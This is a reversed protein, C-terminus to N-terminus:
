CRCNELQFDIFCHLQLSNCSVVRSTFLRLSPKSRIKYEFFTLTTYKVCFYVYRLTEFTAEGSLLTLKRVTVGSLLTKWGSLLPGGSTVGGGGGRFYRGSGLTVGWGRFYHGAAKLLAGVGRLCSWIFYWLSICVNSYTYSYVHRRWFLTFPLSEFQFLYKVQFSEISHSSCFSKNLLRSKLSKFPFKWNSSVLSKKWVLRENTSEHDWSM